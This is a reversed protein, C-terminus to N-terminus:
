IVTMASRSVKKLETVALRTKRSAFRRADTVMERIVTMAHKM